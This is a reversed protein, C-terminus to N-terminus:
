IFAGADGLQGQLSRGAPQLAGDNSVSVPRKARQSGLYPRRGVREEGEGEVGDGMESEADRDRLASLRQARSGEGASLLANLDWGGGEIGRGLSPTRSDGDGDGGSIFSERVSHSALPDPRDVHRWKKQGNEDVELRLELDAEVDSEADRFRSHLSTNSPRAISRPRLPSLARVPFSPFLSFKRSPRPTTRLPSPKLYSSASSSRSPKAPSAPSSTCTEHDKDIAAQHPTSPPELKTSQQLSPLISNRLARGSLIQSSARTDKAAFLANDGNRSKARRELYAKREPWLDESSSIVPRITPRNWQDRQDRQDTTDDSAEHITYPKRVAGFTDSTPPRPFNQESREGEAETSNWSSSQSKMSMQARWSNRVELSNYPGGNGHGIGFTRGRGISSCSMGNRGHGFGSLPRMYPTHSSGVSGYRRPKSLRKFALNGLVGSGGGITSSRRKRSSAKDAQSLREQDEPAVEYQPRRETEKVLVSSRYTSGFGSWRKSYPRLDALIPAKSSQRKQREQMCELDSIHVKPYIDGVKEGLILQPPSIDHKSLVFSSKGLNKRKRRRRRRYCCLLIILGMLAVMPLMVAAAIWGRGSNNILYNGDQNDGTHTASPSAAGGVATTPSSSDITQSSPGGSQNNVNINLVQSQSQTGNSVTINLSVLEAQLSSPVNGRLTRTDSDYELWPAQNLTVSIQMDPDPNVIDALSYDFDSGITANKSELPKLFLASSSNSAVVLCIIGNARDGYISTASVTFNLSSVDDPPTGSLALTDTDLSIWSPTSANIATIDTSSVPKGNLTLSTDLGSFHFGMGPTIDITKTAPGFAFIHSEIILQFSAVAGAFGAVDSATLQIDYVQSLEVPSTSEPTMGSFSLITPDFHIWSPLPTNNACLAYYVTTEDTNIFTDPSFSFALSASHSLILSEPGAPVGFTSIQQAIPKGLAPGPEKSVVLTVPMTTSGAEDTAVLNFSVPGADQTEPTGYLSRKSSDLQLWAPSGSLTYSSNAADDSFTTEAFQFQFPKSVRAVPPVQSNIPFLITPLASAAGISILGLLGLVM